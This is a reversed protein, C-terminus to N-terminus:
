SAGPPADGQGSEEALKHPRRIAAGMAAVGGAL